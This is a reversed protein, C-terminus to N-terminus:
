KWPGSLVPAPLVPPTSDVHTLYAAWLDYSRQRALAIQCLAEARQGHTAPTWLALVDACHQRRYAQWAQQGPALDIPKGQQDSARATAAQLYRALAADAADVAQALCIREAVIGAPDACIAQASAPALAACAALSLHVVIRVCLRVHQRPAM